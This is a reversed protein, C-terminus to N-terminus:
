KVFIVKSVAQGNAMNIKITYIGPSCSPPLHISQSSVAGDNDFGATIITQLNNYVNIIVKGKDIYKLQLNITKDVVPNPSIIIDAKKTRGNISLIQSILKNGNREVAVIRYFSKGALLANDIWAYSDRGDAGVTAINTFVSGNSSRQITYKEINIEVGVNWSIKATGNNEIINVNYFDVPLVIPVDLGLLYYVSNEILQTATSTLKLFSFESLGILLFRQTTITGNMNTGVPVEVISNTTTSANANGLVSVTPTALWTSNTVGTVANTSVSSFLELVDNDIGTFTLGSFIPHTKDSITVGIQATNVANGAIWNWVTNKLTFPKLLLKPKDLAELATFGPSTSGPTSSMVVVDFGSYDNTTSTADVPLVLFDPNAHLKNFVISDAASMPLLTFYAVRKTSASTVYIKGTLVIPLDAGGVSTVSYQYNGSATPTGQLTLTKNVNDFTVTAWAPINATDLGSAGGSWTFTVTAIPNGLLIAQTANQSTVIAPYKDITGSEYYGLDPFNGGYEIGAYIGADILDSGPALNMFLTSYTGDANRPTLILSTDLSTFDDIDATIGATNWSNNQNTVTRTSFANSNTSSLSVSNRIILTGGSSNGFGYNYGNQYASANLVTMTGFNNNQDFGRVRNGVALCRIVKINHATFDGGLKFGNGNGYNLYSSLDAFQDFWAKDTLYRPHTAMDYSTPGNSYSICHKLVSNGIKQFFDWGDDSNNWARCGEFVNPNVNSYQKDAFGDANGGHDPTAVGGSEYDFNDHSDCNLILNNGGAKLQLGTDCNGYFECDEIINNSGNNIMGNDGAYRIILGKIHMYSSNASLSIGPFTSGYPEGRFDLIPKEGPFAMIAIRSTPSGTENIGVKATLNYIGDRLYLTDGPLTLKTLGVAFSCPSDITGSGSGDPSAYFSNAYLKDQVISTLILVVVVSFFYKFIHKM